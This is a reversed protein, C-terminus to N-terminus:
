LQRAKPNGGIVVHRMALGSAIGWLLTNAILSLPVSWFAVDEPFVSFVPFSVVAELVKAGQSVPKTLIAGSQFWLSLWLVLHIGSVAIAMLM